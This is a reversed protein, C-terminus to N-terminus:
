SMKSLIDKPKLRFTWVNSILIALVLIAALMGSTLIFHVTTVTIQDSSNGFLAGLNGVFLHSFWASLPIACLAIMGVELMQQFLISGKSIGGAMLIGTERVRGKVWLSLILTVIALSITLIAIMLSRILSSMDSMSGATREYVEDNASITFNDWNVSSIKQAEMIISELQEPDGVFFDASDYGNGPCDSYNQLADAMAKMDMFVYNDYDYYSAMDYNNKEDSKDALVDFIGVIELEESRDNVAVVTDGIDLKHKDAIAKSILIADTDSDTIHRGEVLTFMQSLFMSSYESNVTGVTYYQDDVMSQGIPNIHEYYTGDTDFLEFITSYSADYAKIGQIQAIEDIMDESLFEQTSYTGGSGSSWDGTSLNRSVTFSTGTTGRLTESSKEEADMSAFGCLVLTSIVFIIFFLLLSKGRKRLVFLFARKMVNM